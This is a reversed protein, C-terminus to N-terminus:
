QVDEPPPLEEADLEESSPQDAEPIPAGTEDVSGGCGIILLAISFACLFRWMVRM